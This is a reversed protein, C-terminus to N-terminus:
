LPENRRQVRSYLRLINFGVVLSPKAEAYGGIFKRLWEPSAGVQEAIRQYALMKSHLNARERDVLAAAARRADDVITTSDGFLSTESAEGSPM